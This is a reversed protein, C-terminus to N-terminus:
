KKASNALHTMKEFLQDFDGEYMTYLFPANEIQHMLLNDGENWTVILYRNAKHVKAQKGTKHAIYAEVQKCTRPEYRGSNIWPTKNKM